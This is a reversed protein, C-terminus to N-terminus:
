VSEDDREKEVGGYNSGGLIKITKPKSGWLINKKAFNLPYYILQLLILHADGNCSIV